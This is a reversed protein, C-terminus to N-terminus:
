GAGGAGGRPRRGHHSRLLEACRQTADREDRGRAPELGGNCTQPARGQQGRGATRRGAAPPRAAATLPRASRAHHTVRVRRDTRRCRRRLAPDPAAPDGARSRGGAQGRGDLRRRQPRWRTFCVSIWLSSSCSSDDAKAASAPWRRSAPPGSGGAASAEEATHPESMGGATGTEEGEVEAVDSRHPRPIPFGGLAAGGGIM